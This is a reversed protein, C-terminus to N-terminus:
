SGGNAGRSSCRASFPLLVIEVQATIFINMGAEREGEGFETIAPM